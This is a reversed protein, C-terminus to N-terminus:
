MARAAAAQRGTTLEYLINALVEYLAYYSIRLGQVGPVFDAFEAAQSPPIAIPAPTVDIGAAEFEKRARPFDFSHGVLIVRTVGSAKLIQASRVANEHTNRARAEIWRVPVGFEHVLANRMLLAEPPAGRVSGGSVLVPLGTERALRAGYRIRELTITGITAAGYEAAYLRTGGGLIVIAQAGSRQAANLAPTHDLSRILFWGVAPMSLLALAITGALALTRGLRAHRGWIALGAFAVLLPGNPPLVLVKVLQKVWLLTM